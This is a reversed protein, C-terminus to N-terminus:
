VKAVQLDAASGIGQPDPVIPSDGEAGDPHHHEGAAELLRLQEELAPQRDEPTITMLDELAAKLRRTVQVTGSGYQRIEDFTLRVYGEWALVPMTLRVDGDADVSEGNPFPRRALQRLLDHLRDIAQVATTPDHPLSRQAIDVLMRFGYAADQPMMREFGIEVADLVDKDKLGGGGGHVRFLPANAPVFDGIGVILTLSCRAEHALEVLYDQDVRFVVGSSTACVVDGGDREADPGHDPYLRDMVERTEAGVVEILAAARLQRGIHHVYLILVMISAVVMVYAVVVALGPVTADPTTTAVSRLALMSHAFTAVFLGIAFQSPKDHLIAQVIRPSFQAMALQVVVLVITLLITTLTVMCVAITSLITLTAQPGGTLAVPILTGDDVVLTAISLVAGALVCAVPIAWLGTNSGPGMGLQRKLRRNM